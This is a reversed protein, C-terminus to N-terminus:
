EASLKVYTNSLVQHNFNIIQNTNKAGSARQCKNEKKLGGHAQTPSPFKRRTQKAARIKGKEIFNAKIRKL